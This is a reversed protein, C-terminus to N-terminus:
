GNSAVIRMLARTRKDLATTARRTTGAGSAILEARQRLNAEFQADRVVNTSWFLIGQLIAWGMTTALTEVDWDAHVDGRERGRALIPQFYWRMNRDGGPLKLIERYHGFSEAVGRQVLPKPLRSTRAAIIAAVESCIRVTDLRSELLAHIESDRPTMRAFVLMVLLHEKRPFYFYFSGKAVKAEDCIDSVAVSDVDRTRWLKEAAEMIAKRTARSREQQLTARKM